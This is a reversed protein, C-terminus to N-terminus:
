PTVESTELGALDILGDREAPLKAIQEDDIWDRSADGRADRVHRTFVYGEFARVIADRVEPTVRVNLYLVTAGEEASPTTTDDTFGEFTPSPYEFAFLVRRM